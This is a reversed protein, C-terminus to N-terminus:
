CGSEAFEKKKKTIRNKDKQNRQGTNLLISVNFDKEDFNIKIIGQNKEVVNKVSSLGIGAGEHKTSFYTEGSVLIKRQYTNKITIILQNGKMRAKIEVLKEGEKQNICAEIANEVLNGFIICLDTDLIDVMEPINVKMNMEIEKEGAIAAYHQLIVDVVHKQCVMGEGELVYEPLLEKLYLQLEEMKGKELFGNMSLLHHRWDHRLRATKEINELIKKYQEEQMRLNTQILNAQQSAIIGHYTQILMELTICILIYSVFSWLIIFIVDWAGAKVQKKWYDNVIKVYYVLYALTPIVWIVRWVSSSINLELVTKYLRFMLIWLFPIYAIMIGIGIVFYQIEVPFNLNLASIMIKAIAMINVYLNLVVLVIFLIEFYSGKICLHLILIASLLWFFIGWVNYDALYKGHYLFLIVVVVTIMILISILMVIKATNYRFRSKFPVFVFFAFIICCIMVRMTICILDWNM